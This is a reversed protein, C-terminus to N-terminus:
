SLLLCVALFDFVPFTFLTLKRDFYYYHAVPEMTYIWILLLASEYFRCYHILQDEFTLPDNCTPSTWSTQDEVREALSGAVVLVDSGVKPCYPVLLRRVRRVRSEAQLDCRSM